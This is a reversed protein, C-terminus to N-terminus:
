LSLDLLPVFWAAVTGLAIAIGYPVTIPAPQDLTPWEGSRGFTAIFKIADWTRFLAPLAVRRRMMVWLALAGGFIGIFLLALGFPRPGLFAGATILLKADGGGFGGLAFLPFGLLLGAGAGLIGAMVSPDGPLGRLFLALVIGSVSIVNPIRRERADSFAALGMVTVVAISLLTYSTSTM